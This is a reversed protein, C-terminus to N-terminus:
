ASKEMERAIADSLKESVKAELVQPSYDKGQRMEQTLKGFQTRLKVGSAAAGAARLRKRIEELPRGDSAGLPGLERIRGTFRTVLEVFLPAQAASAWDLAFREARVGAETLLKRTFHEMVM